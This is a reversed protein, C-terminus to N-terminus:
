RFLSRGSRVYFSRLHSGRSLPRERYLRLAFAGAPHSRTDLIRARDEPPLMNPSPLPVPHHPPLVAPTMMAAFTLDAATFQDGLLYPRGDALQAAVDDLTTQIVERAAAVASPNLGLRSEAVREASGRMLSLLRRELAPARGANFPLSLDINRFFWEYAVLRTAVGFAGAFRDSLAEIAERPLSAPFLPAGREDAAYHVIDRSDTLVRGELRLVPLTTRRGHYYAAVWSFMQLHHREDYDVGALDLAWRAREGYHSIPITVLLPKSM